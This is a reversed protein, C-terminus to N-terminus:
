APRRDGRWNAPPLATLYGLLEGWSWVAAFLSLYPLARFCQFRHRGKQLTTFVVRGVLLFPLVASAAAMMLRRLLPVSAVRMAGYLRGFEYRERLAAGLRFSRQQLTLLEPSLWLKDGRAQLAEHVKPEHFEANWTERLADLSARKYTVNCDTLQPSPGDQVPPMYGVGLERLYIAWHLATDCGEKDVPGGIATNPRAKHAAIINACWHLPPICQDETIAVIEGSSARVGAARLEAFTHRGTSPWVFKVNAFRGAVQPDHLRSEIAVIIEMTPASQQCHLAQLCRVVNGGGDLAVVVVSLEPHTQQLANAGSPLTTSNM